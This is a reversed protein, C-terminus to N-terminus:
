PPKKDKKPQEATFHSINAAKPFRMDDVMSVSGLHM